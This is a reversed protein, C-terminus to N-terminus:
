GRRHRFALLEPVAGDAYVEPKRLRVRCAEVRRDEFCFAILEEALEELLDTHPRKPWVERLHRHIRDYDICADLGGGEYGRHRRWLEVDVIVKQAAKRERELLGLRVMVEVGRLAICQCDEEGWM